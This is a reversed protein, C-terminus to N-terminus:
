VKQRQMLRISPNETKRGWSTQERLDTKGGGGYPIAGERRNNKNALKGFEWGGLVGDLTMKQREGM